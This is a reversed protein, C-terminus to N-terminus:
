VAARYRTKGERVQLYDPHIDTWQLALTEAPGLGPDLMLLATDHLIKPWFELYIWEQERNLVFERNREGRLLRIESYSRHDAMRSGLSAHSAAGRASSEHEGAATTDPLIGRDFREIEDLRRGALAEFALVYCMQQAYFEVPRPKAASRTKVAQM